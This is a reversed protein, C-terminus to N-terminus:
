TRHMGELDKPTATFANSIGSGLATTSTGKQIEMTLNGQTKGVPEHYSLWLTAYVALDLISDMVSENNPVKDKSQLEALRALKVGVLVRFVTNVDTGASVATNEFNSYRNTESAYDQSKKDHIQKMRNLAADFKPNM